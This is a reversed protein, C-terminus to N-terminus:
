CSLKKDFKDLSEFDSSHFSFRDRNHEVPDPHSIDPFKTSKFLFETFFNKNCFKSVPEILEPM